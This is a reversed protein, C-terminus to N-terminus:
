AAAEIAEDLPFIKLTGDAAKALLREYERLSLPAFSV